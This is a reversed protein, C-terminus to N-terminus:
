EMQWREPSEFLARDLRKISHIAKKKSPSESGNIQLKQELSNLRDRLEGLCDRVEAVDESTLMHEDAQLHEMINSLEEVGSIRPKLRDRPNTFARQYETEYFRTPQIYPLVSPSLKGSTTPSYSRLASRQIGDVSFPSHDM